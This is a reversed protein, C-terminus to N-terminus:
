ERNKSRERYLPGNLAHAIEWFTAMHKRAVVTIDFTLDPVMKKQIFGWMATKLAYLMCMQELKLRQSHTYSPDYAVIALTREDFTLGHEICFGALDFYPDDWDAYEWDVLWLRSGDFLLNEWFWDHHCLTQSDSSISMQESFAYADLIQQPFDAGIQQGVTFYHRLVRRYFPLEDSAPAPFSHVQKMSHIINCIVQGRDGTWSGLVKGYFNAHEIFSEIIFGNDIDFCYLSPALGLEVGKQYSLYERARSIYLVEAHPCGLRVFYNGRETSVLYNKNTLGSSIKEISGPQLHMIEVFQKEIQQNSASLTTFSFFLFVFISRIM